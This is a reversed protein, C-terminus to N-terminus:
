SFDINFLNYSQLSDLNLVSLNMTILNNANNFDLNRGINGFNMQMKQSESLTKIDGQSQIAWGRSLISVIKCLVMSFMIQFLGECEHM